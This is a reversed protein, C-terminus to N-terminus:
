KSIRSLIFYGVIFFGVVLLLFIVGYQFVDELGNYWTMIRDSYEFYLDKIKEMVADKRHFQKVKGVDLDPPLSEV